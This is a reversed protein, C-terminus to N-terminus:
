RIPPEATKRIDALLENARKLEDTSLNRNPMIALSMSWRSPVGRAYIKRWQLEPLSGPIGSPLREGKGMEM